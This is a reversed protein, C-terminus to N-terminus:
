LNTLERLGARVADFGELADGEGDRPAHVAQEARVAGALGGQHSGDGRQLLGVRARYPEVGVVVEGAFASYFGRVDDQEHSLERLRVEGGASDCYCITQQRAHFDVGCYIAM